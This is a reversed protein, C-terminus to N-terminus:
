DRKREISILVTVIAVVIMEACFALHFEWLNGVQFEPRTLYSIVGIVGCVGPIIASGASESKVLCFYLGLVACAITIMPMMVLDNLFFDRNVFKTLYTSIEKNDEPFWILGQISASAEETIWFPLFQYVALGLLLVASMINCARVYNTSIRRKM